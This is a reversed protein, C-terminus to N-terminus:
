PSWAARGTQTTNFASSAPCGGLVVRDRYVVTYWLNEGARILDGREASRMSIQPDSRRFIPVTIGGGSGIATHLRHLPRLPGDICRVGQGYVRGGPLAANGRLVISAADPPEGHTTLVLSDSTLFSGGSAM